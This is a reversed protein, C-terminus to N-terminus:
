GGGTAILYPAPRHAPQQCLQGLAAEDSIHRVDRVGEALLRAHGEAMVDDTVAILVVTVAFGSRRLTGLTLATQPSVAPLLATISQSRPLRPLMTMVLGSFTLGDTLEARALTQRIKMLQEEGRGAPVVLPELRDDAAEEDRQAAALRTAADRGNAALGVPQGLLTVAHALSVAATAALDSRAPEGQRSYGAAHLDILITTGAQTSAEYVKSHLEGTRATARWHVRQLPDGPQYPRVGAIRTPDEYLRHTLRVEGVPRRSAIDYGPLPVVKPLVLLHVPTTIIRHRHYLGFLDGTELIAPGLRYYGRTHPLLRYSLTLESGGWLSGVRGSKGKTIELRPPRSRIASRPLLDELVAWWIPWASENRVVVRVRVESGIEIGQDDASCSRVAAIADDPPGAFRRGLLLVVILTYGAIALAGSPLAVAALLLAIAAIFWPV